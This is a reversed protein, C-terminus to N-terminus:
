KLMTDLHWLLGDFKSYARVKVLIDESEHTCEMQHKMFDLLFQYTGHDQENQTLQMVDNIDCQNQQEAEFLFEFIDVPETWKLIETKITTDAAVQSEVDIITTTLDTGRIAMYDSISFGHEIEKKYEEKLYGSIGHFHRNSFYLSASLYFKSVRFENKLQSLLAAEVKPKLATKLISM